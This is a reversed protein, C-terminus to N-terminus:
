NWRAVAARARNLVQLVLNSDEAQPMSQLYAELHEIAQGPQGNRALTAGLDRLQLPDHPNLQRLRGMVRIARSFDGGGLYVAKLNNLMRQAILGLPVPQLAEPTAQFPAGVVREVLAECEEPTRMRGGHFPDFIVEDSGSAGNVAKAVFHGPLGVGVVELGARAGVAMAVASLTIPIGTRRDLVENLYSNRADYYDGQNGRFGLDHFLYRCLGLVRAELSGRLRRRAEHAMAGLESLYGPVDLAPYEDRALQLALEALDLPASPQEALLTLAADLEM